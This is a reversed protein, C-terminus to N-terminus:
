KTVKTLNPIAVVKWHNGSKQLKFDLTVTEPSQSTADGWKVGVMADSGTRSESAIGKYATKKMARKLAESPGDTLKHVEPTQEPPPLDFMARKLANAIEPLHARVQTVEDNASRGPPMQDLMDRLVSESDFYKDFTALDRKDYADHAREVSEKPGVGFIVGTMWLVGVIAAILLLGGVIWGIRKGSGSPPLAYPPPGPPPYM